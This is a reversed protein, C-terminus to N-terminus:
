TSLKLYDLPSETKITRPSDVDDPDVKRPSDMPDDLMENLNLAIDLDLSPGSSARPSFNDSFDISPKPNLSTSSTTTPWDSTFFPNTQQNFEYHFPKLGNLSSDQTFSRPISRQSTHSSQSSATPTLSHYLQAQTGSEKVNMPDELIPAIFSPTETSISLNNEPLSQFQSSFATPSLLFSTIDTTPVPNTDIDLNL